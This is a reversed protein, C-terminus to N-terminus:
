GIGNRIAMGLLATEIAQWAQGFDMTGSLVAGLTTLISATGIVYTKKGKLWTWLGNM